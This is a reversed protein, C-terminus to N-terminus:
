VRLTKERRKTASVKEGRRIGKELLRAPVFGRESQRISSENEPIVRM